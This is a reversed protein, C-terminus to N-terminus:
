YINRSMKIKTAFQLILYKLYVNVKRIYLYNLDSTNIALLNVEAASISEVDGSQRKFDHGLLREDTRKYM